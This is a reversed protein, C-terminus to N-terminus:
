IGTITGPRTKDPVHVTVWIQKNENARLSFPQLSAADRVQAHAPFAGAPSSIDIYDPSGNLTVKLFNTTNVYDVNVLTDDKILLEPALISAPTSYRIDGEGAQYWVKVLRVDIAGAPISNGQNDRLNPM